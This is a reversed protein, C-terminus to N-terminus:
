LEDQEGSTTTSKHKSTRLADDQIARLGDDDVLPSWDAWPEPLVVNLISCLDPLQDIQNETSAFTTLVQVRADQMAQLYLSVSMATSPAFFQWVLEISLVTGYQIVMQWKELADLFSKAEHTINSLPVAVREPLLRLQRLSHSKGGLIKKYQDKEGTLQIQTAADAEEQIASRLNYLEQVLTAIRRKSRSQETVHARTTQHTEVLLSYASTFNSLRLASALPHEACALHWILVTERNTTRLVEFHLQRGVEM